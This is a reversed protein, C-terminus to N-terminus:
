ESATKMLKRRQRRQEIELNFRKGFVLLYFSFLLSLLLLLYIGGQLVTANYLPSEKPISYALPGFIFVRFGTQFIYLAGFLALIKQATHSGKTLRFACIACCTAAAAMGFLAPQTANVILPSAFDLFESAITVLTPVGNLAAILYFVAAVAIVQRKTNM